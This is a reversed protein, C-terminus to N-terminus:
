SKIWSIGELEANKTGTVVFGKDETGEQEVQTLFYGFDYYSKEDKDFKDLSSAAVEKARDLSTERNFVLNIYIIKGQIRASAEMVGDQKKLEDSVKTLDSKRIEVSERGKLRDGYKDNGGVFMSFFIYFMILIIIFVILCILSLLKHRLILDKAGKMFKKM